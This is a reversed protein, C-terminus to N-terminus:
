STAFYYWRPRGHCRWASSREFFENDSYATIGSMVHRFWVPCFLVSRRGGCEGGLVMCRRQKDRRPGARSQGGRKKEGVRKSRQESRERKKEARTMRRLTGTIAAATRDQWWPRFRDEAERARQRM